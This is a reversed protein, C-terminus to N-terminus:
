HRLESLYNKSYIQIRAASANLSIEMKRQIKESSVLTNLPPSLAMELNIAPKCHCLFTRRETSRSLANVGRGGKWTDQRLDLAWLRGLSPCSLGKLHSGQMRSARWNHTSDSKMRPSRIGLHKRVEDAEFQGKGGICTRHDEVFDRPKRQWMWRAKIMVPCKEPSLQECRFIKYFEAVQRADQLKSRKTTELSRSRTEQLGQSVM